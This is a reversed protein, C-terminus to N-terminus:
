WISLCELEIIAIGMSYLTMMFKNGQVKFKVLSLETQELDGGLIVEGLKRPGSYEIFHMMLIQMIVGECHYFSLLPAEKREKAEEEVEVEVEM